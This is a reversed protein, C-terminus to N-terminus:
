RTLIPAVVPVPKPGLWRWGVRRPAYATGVVATGAVTSYVPSGAWVSAVPAFTTGQDAPCGFSSAAMAMAWIAMVLLIFGALGVRACMKM